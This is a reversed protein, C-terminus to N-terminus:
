KVRLLVPVTKRGLKEAAISRHIGEIWGEGEVLDDILIPRVDGGTKLARAVSDVRSDHVLIATDWAFAAASDVPYHEELRWVTTRAAKKGLHGIVELQHERALDKFAYTKKARAM